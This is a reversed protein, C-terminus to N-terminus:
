QYRPVLNSINSVTLTIFGQELCLTGIIHFAAAKSGIPGSFNVFSRTEVFGTQLPELDTSQVLSWVPYRLLYGGTFKVGFSPLFGLFRSFDDGAYQGQEVLLKGGRLRMTQIEWKRVDTECEMFTEVALDTRRQSCALGIKGFLNGVQRLARICQVSPEPLLLGTEREFVQDLFGGLFLPLEGRRRFGTFLHRGVKGNDLAEEFDKAFSPLTITLFSRGESQARAAITKYDRGTSTDCWTGLEELVQQLFDTLSKM